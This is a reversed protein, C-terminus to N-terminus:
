AAELLGESTLVAPLPFVPDVLGLKRLAPLFGNRVQVQGTAVMGICFKSVRGTPQVHLARFIKDAVGNGRASKTEIICINPDVIRHRGAGTLRLNTDITMREGGEKAVLTIRNYQILLVQAIKKDFPTGYANRHCTDVFTLAAPNLEKLSSDLRLRTKATTGRPEIVKIELYNLKAGVYTRIRVKCRKRRRQHHDYYARREQDDFYRTSYAFSREGDIDLVDFDSQLANLATDLNDLSMIYKNDLRALMEAKENLEALSIQSYHALTNNIKM